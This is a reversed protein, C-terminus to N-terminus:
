EGENEMARRVSLPRMDTWIEKIWDLCDQKEGKKGAERWGAPVAKWEPWISYQEESNVVVTYVSNDEADDLKM